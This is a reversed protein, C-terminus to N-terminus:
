VPVTTADYDLLGYGAAGKRELTPDQLARGEECCTVAPPVTCALEREAATPPVLEQPILARFAVQGNFTALEEPVLFSRVSSSIGDALADWCHVSDAM